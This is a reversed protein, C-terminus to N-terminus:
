KLAARSDDAAASALPLYDGAREIERQGEASLV